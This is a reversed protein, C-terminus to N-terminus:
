DEGANAQSRQRDCGDLLVDIRQRGPIDPPDTGVEMKVEHAEIGRHESEGEIDEAGLANEHSAIPRDPFRQRAVLQGTNKIAKAKRFRVAARDGPAVRPTKEISALRDSGGAQRGNM